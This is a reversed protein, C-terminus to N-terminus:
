QQECRKLLSKQSSAPSAAVHRCHALAQAAIAATFLAALRAKASPCRLLQPLLRRLHPLSAASIVAGLQPLKKGGHASLVSLGMGRRASSSKRSRSDSCRSTPESGGCAGGISSPMQILASQISASSAEALVLEFFRSAASQIRCDWIPEM